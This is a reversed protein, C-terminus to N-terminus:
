FTRNHVSHKRVLITSFPFVANDIRYIQIPDNKKGQGEVNVLHPQFLAESAEFREGGVTFDYWWDIM